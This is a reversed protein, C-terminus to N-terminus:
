AIRWVRIKGISIKTRYAWGPHRIKWQKAASSVKSAEEEPLEFSHGVEMAEFPYIPPRKGGIRRVPIPVNKDILITM